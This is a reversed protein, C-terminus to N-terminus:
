YAPRHRFLLVLCVPKEADNAANSVTSLTLLRDGPQVDTPLAYLSRQRASTVYAMMEADTAFTPHSTYNFYNPQAPDMSAEFVAVLLYDLKEYLTTVTATAAQTAFASGATKYQWLKHFTKGPASDGARLHLNEPPTELTCASDIFVAGGEEATGRYNHNLYYTNNRQVVWEDLLGPIQLRGMVEPYETHTDVMEELINRLENYVYKSQRTRVASPDTQAQPAGAQVNQPLPTIVPAHVSNPDPPFTSGDSPLQVMEGAQNVSMGNETTFQNYFATWDEINQVYGMLMRGGMVLCFVLMAAAALLALVRGPKIPPKAPKAPKPVKVPEEPQAEAALEPIPEFTPLADQVLPQAAQAARAAQAAQLEARLRSDTDYATVVDYPLNGRSPNPMDGADYSSTGFSPEDGPEPMAGAAPKSQGTAAEAPIPDGYPTGTPAFALPLLPQEPLPPFAPGTDGYLTGPTPTAAGEPMLGPVPGTDGYLTGPTPTATGEPMLGPVPGTDGYLMGPTPNATGEPMLGPVPGTDGYLMGPTPNAAGEPMLGPVPGTDSFFLGPIEEAPTEQVAMGPGTHFADEEWVPEGEWHLQSAPQRLPLEQQGSFVAAYPNDAEVPPMAFPDPQAAPFPDSGEPLPPFATGQAPFAAEAPQVPEQPLAADFPEDEDLLFEGNPEPTEPAPVAEEPFAAAYPNKIAEAAEAPDPLPAAIPTPEPQPTADMYPVNPDDPAPGPLPEESDYHLQQRYLQLFRYSDASTGAAAQSASESERHGPMPVAQNQPRASLADAGTDEAAAALVFPHDDGAEENTHTEEAPHFRRKPALAESDLSAPRLAARQEQARRRTRRSPQLVAPEAAPAATVATAAEDASDAVAAAGDAVFAAAEAAVAAAAEDTSDAVAAAGDTVFAAAEDAVAAAAEDASDAVAAAGDTVFAAAEAAVAAAAEDASDAVAAAGDAVFAAAEAAVAAAAEDASDAVAAAGDSVFAAAEAAVAAAEAAVAAAAEDASDAVAAGGDTVFAAAEAAVAAADDDASDAVAAAGDTGAGDGVVAGSKLVAPRMYASNNFWEGGSQKERSHQSRRSRGTRAEGAAEPADAEPQEPAAQGDAEAPVAPKRPLARPRQMYKPINLRDQPNEPQKEENFQQIFDPTPLAEGEPPIWNPDAEPYAPLTPDFGPLDSLLTAATDEMGWRQTAAGMAAPDGAPQWQAPDADKDWRLTPMSATNGTQPWQMNPDVPPMMGTTQGNQWQASPDIPPMMGTTQGNQWQANPDIPPMMGTTQGDQWSANPDVPPMIGTGQVSQWQMGDGGPLPPFGAYSTQVPMAAFAGGDGMPPYPMADGEMPFFSNGFAGTMADPTMAGFPVAGISDGFPNQYDGAFAPAPVAEPTAYGYPEGQRIQSFSHTQGFAGGDYPQGAQPVPSGMPPQEQTPFHDAASIRKDYPNQQEPPEQGFGDNNWWGDM